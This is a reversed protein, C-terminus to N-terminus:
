LAEIIDEITGTNPNIGAGKNNLVTVVDGITTTATPTIGAAEAMSECDTPPEPSIGKLIRNLAKAWALLSNVSAVPDELSSFEAHRIDGLSFLNGNINLVNVTQPTGGTRLSKGSKGSM